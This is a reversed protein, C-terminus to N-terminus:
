PGGQVMNVFDDVYVDWKKVAPRSWGSMVPPTPVPRPVPDCPIILAVPSPLPAAKSVRDLQHAACPANLRLIKNELDAVTKTAATFLSPPQMWVM